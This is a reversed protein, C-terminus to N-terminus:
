DQDCVHVSGKTLPQRCSPCKERIPRLLRSARCHPCVSAEHASELLRVRGCEKCAAALYAAPERCHRCRTPLDITSKCRRVEISNCSKCALTLDAGSDPTLALLVLRFGLLVAVGGLLGAERASVKVRLRKKGPRVPPTDPRETKVTPPPRGDGEFLDFSEAERQRGRGLRRGVPASPLQEAARGPMLDAQPFM